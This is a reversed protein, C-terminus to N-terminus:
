EEALTSKSKKYFAVKNAYGRQEFFTILSDYREMINHEHNWMLKSICELCLWSPKRDAEHLSNSGNMLCKYNSCHTISFIHTIEHSTTKLMRNFYWAYGTSDLSMPKLRYTSFVGVHEKLNAQGFVYNWNSKPYLDKSTVAIYAIADQPLSYILVENLIYKTHIQEIGEKVRKANKSIITDSITALLTTELGFFLEIYKRLDHLMNKDIETFAGIPKLYIKNRNKTPRVPASAIYNTFTQTPEHHIFLWEGPKPDPLKVQISRLQNLDNIEVNTTFVKGEKAKSRNEEKTCAITVFLFIIIASLKFIAVRRLHNINM